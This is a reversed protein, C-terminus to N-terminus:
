IRAVTRNTATVKKRQVNSDLRVLQKMYKYMQKAYSQLIANCLKNSYQCNCILYDKMGM